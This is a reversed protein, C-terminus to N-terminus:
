LDHTDAFQQCYIKILFQVNLFAQLQEQETGQINKPDPFNYHFNRAKPFNRFHSKAEDSVTLVFDFTIDRYEEILNSSYASIDIGDKQMVTVAKPHVKYAEIGASLIEVENTAFHRLYAEAM